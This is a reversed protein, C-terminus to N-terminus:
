ENFVASYKGVGNLDHATIAVTKLGEKRALDWEFDFDKKNLNTKRQVKGKVGSHWIAAIYPTKKHVYSNLHM